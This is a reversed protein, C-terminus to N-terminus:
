IHYHDKRLSHTWYLLCVPNSRSTDLPPPPLVPPAPSRHGMVTPSSKGLMTEAKRPNVQDHTRRIKRLVKKVYRVCGRVMEVMRM